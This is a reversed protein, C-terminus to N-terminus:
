QDDRTMAELDQSDDRAICGCQALSHLSFSFPNGIQMVRQTSREARMWLNEPFSQHPWAMGRHFTPAYPAVRLVIVRANNPLKVIHKRRPAHNPTVADRVLSRRVGDITAKDM